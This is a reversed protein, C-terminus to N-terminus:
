KGEGDRIGGRGRGSFFMGTHMGPLVTLVYSAAGSTDLGMERQGGVKSVESVPFNAAPPVYHYLRRPSPCGPRFLVLPLPRCRSSPSPTSRPPAPRPVAGCM